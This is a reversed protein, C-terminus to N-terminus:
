LRRLNSFSPKRSLADGGEFASLYVELIRNREYGPLSIALCTLVQAGPLSPSVSTPEYIRRVLISESSM